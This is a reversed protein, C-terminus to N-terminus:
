VEPIFEIPRATYDIHYDYYSGFAYLSNFPKEQVEDISETGFDWTSDKGCGSSLGENEKDARVIEVLYEKIEEANGNAQYFMTADLNSNHRAIIWKM